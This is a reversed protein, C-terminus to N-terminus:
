FCIHHASSVPVMFCVADIGSLRCTVLNDLNLGPITLSTTALIKKRPVWQFFLVMSNLPSWSIYVMTM